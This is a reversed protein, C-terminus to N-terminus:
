LKTVTFPYEKPNKNFKKLIKNINTSNTANGSSGHTSQYLLNVINWLFFQNLATGRNGGYELFPDNELDRKLHVKLLLTDNKDISASSSWIINNSTDFQSYLSQKEDTIVVKIKKVTYTAIGKNITIGNKKWVGWNTLGENFEKSPHYAVSYYKSKNEIEVNSAKNSTFYIFAGLGITILTVLVLLIYLINKPIKLM